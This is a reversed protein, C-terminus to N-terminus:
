DRRVFRVAVVPLSMPPVAPSSRDPQSMTWGSETRNTRCRRAQSPTPDHGATTNPHAGSSTTDPAYACRTSMRNSITRVQPFETYVARPRSVLGDLLNADARDKTTTPIM